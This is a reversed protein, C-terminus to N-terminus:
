RDTGLPPRRSELQSLLLVRSTAFELLAMRCAYAQTASALCLVRTVLVHAM